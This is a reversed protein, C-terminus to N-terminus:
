PASGMQYGVSLDVDATSQPDTRVRTGRPANAFDVTVKAETPRGATALAELLQPPLFTQLDYKEFKDPSAMAYRNAFAEKDFSGKGWLGEEAQKRIDEALKKNVNFSVQDDESMGGPKLYLNSADQEYKAALELRSERSPKLGLAALKANNRQILATVEAYQEATREDVDAGLFKKRLRSIEDFLGKVKGIAGEVWNVVQKIAGVVKQIAGPLKEGIDKAWQAIDGRHGALWDRLREVIIKLAPALGTILAAKIGDTSAKLDKMADDVEGSKSVAEEQSGALELYRDRLEQIGKAGRNLLPALSADGLTKQAFAARKAPDQIKVMANALLGFAEENGKAAKLQKLLAPSVKGLFAAMRGTGARAQGLSTVFGKLGGDLQEVSAGSKEAAYRMQALFDVGVGLEEAKDGLEDFHDVLSMLGATAAAATGAIVGGILPIKSLVSGIVSTISKFADRIPSTVKAIRAGIARIAATAKDVARIVISLRTDREAM